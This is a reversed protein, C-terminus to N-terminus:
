ARDAERNVHNVALGQPVALPWQLLVVSCCLTAWHLLVASCCLSHGLPAACCLLVAAHCLPTAGRPPVSPRRRAVSMVM